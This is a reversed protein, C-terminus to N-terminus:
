EAARERPEAWKVRGCLEAGKQRCGQEKGEETAEVEGRGWLQKKNALFAFGRSSAASVWKSQSFALGPGKDNASVLFWCSHSHPPRAVAAKNGSPAANSTAPKRPWRERPTPDRGSNDEGRYDKALGRGDAAMLPPTYPPPSHARCRRPAQPGSRGAWDRAAETERRDGTPGEPRRGTRGTGTRAVAEGDRRVRLERATPERLRGRPLTKDKKCGPSRSRRVRIATM